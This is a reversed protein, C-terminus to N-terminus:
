PGIVVGSGIILAPIALGVVAHAVGISELLEHDGRALADTSLFGLVVEAAMLSAHAFFGYRHLDSRSLEGPVADTRMSLGTAANGLYITEGVVLLGIHTWRLGQGAAWLGAIEDGCAPGLDEEGIGNADRYEHGASVLGYARVAGVVGAALLTGASAWGAARHYAAKSPFGLFSGPLPERATAASTADVVEASAGGSPEASQAGVPAVALIVCLSVAASVFTTRIMRM